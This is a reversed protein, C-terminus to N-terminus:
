CFKIRCSFTREHSMDFREKPCHMVFVTLNNFTIPTLEQLIWNPRLKTKQEKSIRALEIFRGSM